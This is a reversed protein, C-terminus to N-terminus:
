KKVRRQGNQDYRMITLVQLTIWLGFAIVAEIIMFIFASTAMTMPENGSFIIVLIISIVTLAGGGIMFFWGAMRQTYKWAEQSGMGYFIRFGVHHNAEKTPLFYYWLGLLGMIIPGILMFLGAWFRLDSIFDGLAPLLASIDFSELFATIAGM